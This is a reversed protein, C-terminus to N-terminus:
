QSLPSPTKASQACAVADNGRVWTDSPFRSAPDARGCSRYGNAHLAREVARPLAFPLVLLLSLSALAAGFLRRQWRKGPLLIVLLAIWMMALVCPIMVAPADRAVLPSTGAAIDASLSRLDGAVLVGVAASMLMLVGGLLRTNRRQATSQM